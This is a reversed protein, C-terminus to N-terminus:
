PRFFQLPFAERTMCLQLISDATGDKSEIM